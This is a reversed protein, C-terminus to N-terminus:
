GHWENFTIEHIIRVEKEVVLLELTERSIYSVTRPLNYLM